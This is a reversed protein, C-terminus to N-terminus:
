LIWFPFCTLITKMTEVLENNVAYHPESKFFVNQLFIKDVFSIFGFKVRGRIINSRSVVPRARDFSLM